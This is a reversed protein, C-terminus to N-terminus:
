TQSYEYRPKKWSLNTTNGFLQYEEGSYLFRLCMPIQKNFDQCIEKLRNKNYQLKNFIEKYLTTKSVKPFNKINNVIGIIRDEVNPMTDFSYDFIEDYLKFGHYDRLFETHFGECSLVLFPKLVFLPKITKETIFFENKNYATETVIDIFGTFYNKPYEQSFTLPYKPTDPFINEDEDILKKGNHYKWKYRNFPIYNPYHFTVLGLNLLNEKSLYDVLMAREPKPSHNYCTYLKKTKEVPYSALDDYNTGSFNWPLFFETIGAFRETIINPTIKHGDTCTTLVKVFKNNKELWPQIRKIFDDFIIEYSYETTCDIIIEDPNIKQIEEIELDYIKKGTVPLMYIKKM